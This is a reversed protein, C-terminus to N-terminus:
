APQDFSAIAAAEDSFCEFVDELKVFQLIDYVRRAPNLLRIEAGAATAVKYGRVLGGIGTSDMYPVQDLNVVIQGGPAAVDGVANCLADAHGMTVKGIVDLIIVNNARRVDVDM